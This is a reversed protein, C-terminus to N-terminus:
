HLFGKQQYWDVADRIAECGPRPAYGLEDIARQSTFFMRKRSLKVGDVSVIPEMGTLLAWAEMLYAFPLVLASPLEISPPKRGVLESVEVLIDRLTMNTSGLIYRRGPKGNTFALLHGAAVDDVHVVDLGTDVYAPMRGCAADLILKGTPTPRSDRPGIPAAPNVIVINAGREAVFRRVWEEALYKSRKYHGLMDDLTAPLEEDAPTGDANLGLTAVSSTYVMREVGTQAAAEFLNRTGDVNNAYISKPHRVWLRYDAAVHFLVNCGELLPVLSERHTLDGTVTEVDLGSLHSLDSQPRVMARVQHGEKLLKRLVASGVFGTAGTIFTKM